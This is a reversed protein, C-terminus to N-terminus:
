HHPEDDVADQALKHFEERISLDASFLTTGEDDRVDITVADALSVATAVRDASIERRDGRDTVLSVTSTRGAPDVVIAFSGEHTDLFAIMPLGATSATCTMGQNSVVCVQSGENYERVVVPGADLGEFRAVANGPRNPSERVPEAAGVGVVGATYAVVIVMLAAAVAVFPYRQLNM